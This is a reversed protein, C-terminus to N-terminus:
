PAAEAGLRALLRARLVGLRIQLRELGEM